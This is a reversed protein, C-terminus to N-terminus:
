SKLHYSFDFLLQTMLYLGILTKLRISIPEEVAVTQVEVRLEGFLRGNKASFRTPSSNESAM